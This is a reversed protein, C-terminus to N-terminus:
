KKSTKFVIVAEKKILTKKEHDSLLSTFSDGMYIRGYHHGFEFLPILNTREGGILKFSYKLIFSKPTKSIGLRPVNGTHGNGEAKKKAQYEKTSEIGILQKDKIEWRTKQKFQWNQKKTLPVKKNFSYEMFADGPTLFVPKLLNKEDAVTGLTIALLLSLVIKKM